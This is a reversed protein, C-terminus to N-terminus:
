FISGLTFQEMGEISDIHYELKEYAGAYGDDCSLLAAKLEYFADTTGDIESHRIFIHTYSESSLWIDLAADLKGVADSYDGAAAYERSSLIDDRISETMRHLFILNWVAAGILALLLSLALMEKKIDIVSRKRM